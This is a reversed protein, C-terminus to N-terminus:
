CLKNKLQLLFIGNSYTCTAKIVVRSFSDWSCSLRTFPFIGQVRYHTINVEEMDPRQSPDVRLCVSAINFLGSSSEVPWDARPDAAQQCIDTESVNDDYILYYLRQVQMFQTYFDSVINLHEPLCYWIMLNVFTNKDHPSCLPCCTVCDILALGPSYLLWISSLCCPSCAETYSEM